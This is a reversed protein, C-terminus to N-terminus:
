FLTSSNLLGLVDSPLEARLQFLNSIRGKIDRMDMHKMNPVCASSYPLELFRLTNQLIKKFDLLLEHYPIVARDGCLRNVKLENALHDRVFETLEKHDVHISGPNRIKVSVSKVVSQCQSSKYDVYCAIPNRTVHLICFDGRRCQQDAYEWLDSEVLNHYSIKVGIAKERFLNNDFIKNNLYHEVSIVRPLYWDPMRGSPGFYDEHEQKRVKEDEHLVDGHCMMTPHAALSAQLLDHGSHHNGVVMFNLIDPQGETYWAM